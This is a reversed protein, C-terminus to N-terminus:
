RFVFPDACVIGNSTKLYQKDHIDLTVYIDKEVEDSLVKSAKKIDRITLEYFKIYEEFETENINYAELIEKTDFKVIDATIYQYYSLKEKESIHERIM